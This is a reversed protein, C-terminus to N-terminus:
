VVYICWYELLQMCEGQWIYEEVAVCVCECVCEIGYIADRVVGCVVCGEGGCVM